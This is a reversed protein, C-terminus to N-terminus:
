TVHKDMFYQNRSQHSISPYRAFLVGWVYILTSFTAPCIHEISMVSVPMTMPVMLGWVDVIGIGIGIGIVGGLRTGGSPAAERSSSWDTFIRETWARWLLFAFLVGLSDFNSRSSLWGSWIFADIISRDFPPSSRVSGCPTLLM